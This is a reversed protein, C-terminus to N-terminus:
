IKGGGQCIRHNDGEQNIAPVCRLLLGAEKVPGYAASENSLTDYYGVLNDIGRAFEIVYDVWRGKESRLDAIMRKDSLAQGTFDDGWASRGPSGTQKGRNTEKWSNM